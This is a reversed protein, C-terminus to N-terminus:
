VEEAKEDLLAKSERRARQARLEEEEKVKKEKLFKCFKSNERLVDGKWLFIFPIACMLLSLFGLLSSAWAVGLRTYMPTAAFPLSAGALSRCTSSAAMSSAAFIEYADTLYNLLAMFILVFGIGFPVGALMPVWYPISARATWGLWFLAVVYLPGGICALPLRRSEEKQTWPKNLKQAKHLMADYWLFTLSALIAGGGIPLFMLGSVGANKGYIQEFIIPYAEFYMYFIAYALSLYLCSALVIWESIFMRIPRTLVVTAMQKFGKDELDLPAIINPNGTTKRLKAARNQLIIPGYTEPLCLLFPWAVGAFILGIWFTWKWGLVPSVFGSIVPALLPGFVTGGIFVAMARGRSIPDQYIDAYIGGTVTIPSSAMVGCIFRFFLFVAWTPALASGLAFVTYGFFTSLMITRRGYQESLPGFLLPGLIYGVLYISVPLVEQTGTGVHFYPLLEPLANSPLASGMTSNLVVLMVTGVVFFKKWMPWNVPNEPDEDEWHIVKKDTISSVHSNPLSEIKNDRAEIEYQRTADAEDLGSIIRSLRSEYHAPQPPEILGAISSQRDGPSSGSRDYPAM